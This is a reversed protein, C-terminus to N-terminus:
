HWPPLPGPDVQRASDFPPCRPPLIFPPKPPPSAPPLLLSPRTQRKRFFGLSGGGRSRVTCETSRVVPGHEGFDRSPPSPTPLPPPPSPPVLSASAQMFKGVQNPRHQPAASTPTQPFVHHSPPIHGAPQQGYGTWDPRPQAYLGTGGPHQYGHSMDQPPAAYPSYQGHAYTPSQTAISPDIPVDTDSKVQHPSQHNHGAPLPVSPSTPAQAMTGSSASPTSAPLYPRQIHEPFSSSRSSTPYVGYDSTPTASASYSTSRVEQQGAYPAAAAASAHDLTSPESQTNGVTSPYPSPLGSQQYEPASREM